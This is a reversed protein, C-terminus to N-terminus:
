ARQSQAMVMIPHEKTAIVETVEPQTGVMRMAINTQNWMGEKKTVHM